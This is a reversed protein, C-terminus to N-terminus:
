PLDVRLWLEIGNEDHILEHKVAAVMIEYFAWHSQPLDPFILAILHYDITTPNPRRNLARNVIVVTEARTIPIDPRFTGDGYGSIWGKNYASNIFLYAWHGQIDTFSHIGHGIAFFQSMLVTLEARTMNYEARFTGDPFGSIIGANALFNVAQAYWDGEHVDSFRNALPLHKADDEVLNFIMKAAEARTISQYPRFTGDPFGFVYSIREDTL